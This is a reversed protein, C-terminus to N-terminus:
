EYSCPIRAALGTRQSIKLSPCVISAVWWACLGASEPTTTPLSAVRRLGFMYGTFDTYSSDLLPPHNKMLVSEASQLSTSM